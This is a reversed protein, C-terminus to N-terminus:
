RAQRLPSVHRIGRDVQAFQEIQFHRRCPHVLRRLFVTVRMNFAIVFYPPFVSWKRAAPLASLFIPLTESTAPFPRSLALYPPTSAPRTSAAPFLGSMSPAFM